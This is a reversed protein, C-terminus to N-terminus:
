NQTKQGQIHRVKTHDIQQTITEESTKDQTKVLIEAVRIVRLLMDEPKSPKTTKPPM